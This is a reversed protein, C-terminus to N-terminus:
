KHSVKIKCTKSFTGNTKILNKKNYARVKYSYTKGPKATKDYYVSSHTYGIYNYSKTKSSYRYVKFGYCNQKKMTLKVAKKKNSFTVTKVLAKGPKTPKSLFKIETSPAWKKYAKHIKSDKFCYITKVRPIIEHTTENPGDRNIDTDSISEADLKLNKYYIKVNENVSSRFSKVNESVILKKLYKNDNMGYAFDFEKAYFSYDSVTKVSSPITFTGDKKGVPYFLLETKTKNYLVGNQSSFKSNNKSVSLKELYKNKAFIIYPLEKINAKLTFSKNKKKPPYYMLTKYDKTYLVGDGSTFNKNEKNVKIEEVDADNEFMSLYYYAGFGDGADKVGFIEKVYKPVTVSKYTNEAKFGVIRTVKEGNIESPIVINEEKGCYGSVSYLVSPAADLTEKDNKGLPAVKAYICMWDGVKKASFHTNTCEKFDAGIYRHLIDATAVTSQEVTSKASTPITLLSVATILTLIVSIVKKMFKGRLM